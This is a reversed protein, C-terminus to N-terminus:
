YRGSINKKSNVNINFQLPIEDSYNRYYNSQDLNIDKTWFFVLIIKNKNNPNEAAFQGSIDNSHITLDKMTLSHKTISVPLESNVLALASNNWPNGIFMLNNNKLEESSLETDKKIIIEIGYQEKLSGQLMSLFNDIEPAETQTLNSPKIIYLKEGILGKAVFSELSTGYQKDMSLIRNKDIERYSNRREEESLMLNEPSYTKSNIASRIAAEIDKGAIENIISLFGDITANKFKYREFYTKLIEVFKEEGVRQKLDEFVVPGKRYIIMSYESWSAFKDVSSNIPLGATKDPYLHLRFQTFASEQFYKGYQKEFYYATSYTTLSEDLFSEKFENNGVVSYWWQHGIEHVTSAVEFPMHTFTQFYDIDPNFNYHGMQILQPYEMAGGSLDAEVIDFEEFPYKGFTNSFFKISDSAVDLLKNAQKKSKIANEDNYYFSNIKTGDVTKSVVNFKPSMIFVFDRVNEAAVNLTKKNDNFTTKKDVGTSAIVMNKSTEITFDYNSSESYNSEGVPHFPSEDWLGTKPNYISLIPYWNTFNYIDNSYGMRNNGSPLKLTFDIYIDVKEKPKLNENLNVKLIQNKQTFDVSKNNILVKTITIDGIQDKELTPPMGGIGPLTEASNYSDPYLHLVIDKLDKGYSNNFSITENATLVKKNEDFVANIKYNNLTDEAFAYPVKFCLSCLLTIIFCTFIKFNLKKM